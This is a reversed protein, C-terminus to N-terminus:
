EKTKTTENKGRTKRTKTITTKGKQTRTHQKTHSHATETM